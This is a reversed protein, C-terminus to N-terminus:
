ASKAKVFRVRYENRCSKLYELLEERKQLPSYWVRKGERNRLSSHPRNNYRELWEAMKDRLEEFTTFTLHNYFSEQDSRHSREVKGNHRPTYARILKHRIGLKNLLKDVTHITTEKAHKPNTFELGNDTQITQPLYGFYVIARKIFDVTSYGSHEKYPYIFRERTAEDIITYQFLKETNFISLNCEKPVFKVDMQWKVGLMEPTYYPQEEYAEKIEGHPRLGNKVVFRWLGYYTRSYAYRRRLMGLAEAYTIDPCETFIRVIHEREEQTHANFHPTHPRHSGNKLSERTGNYKRKWRYITQISCHYRHAVFEVNSRELLKMAKEKEKESYPNNWKRCVKAKVEM